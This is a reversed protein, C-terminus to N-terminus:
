KVVLREYSFKRTKPNRKLLEEWIQPYNAELYRKNKADFSPETSEALRVMYAEKSKADVAEGLTSDGMESIILGKLEEIEKTLAKIEGQIPLAKVSDEKEKKQKELAEMQKLKQVIDKKMAKKPLMRDGFPYLVKNAAIIGNVNTAYLGTPLIGTELWLYFEKMANCVEVAFERDREIVFHKQQYEAWGWAYVLYARDLNTTELQVQVQMYYDDPVIGKKFLEAHESQMIYSTKIELLCLRQKGTGSDTEYVLGDPNVFLFPWNDNTYAIDSRIAKFGTRLSFTERIIDEAMHGLEFPWKIEEADTDVKRYLHKRKAYESKPTGYNSIGMIIPATSAGLRNNELRKQRFLAEYEQRTIKGEEVLKVVPRFDYAVKGPLAKPLSTSM